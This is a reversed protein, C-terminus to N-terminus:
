GASADECLSRLDRYTRGSNELEFVRGAVRVAVVAQERARFPTLDVEFAHPGIGAADLDARHRDASATAVSQGDLLVEIREPVESSLQRVWGSLLGAEIKDVYGEFRRRAGHLYAAREPDIDQLLPVVDAELDGFGCFSVLERLFVTPHVLAKEYSILLVPCASGLAFDFMAQTDQRADALATRPSIGESIINRCAIAVTDRVSVVLRPNRFLSLVDSGLVHLHPRKLGWVDATENRRRIYHRLVDPDNAAIAAEADQDEFVVRDCHDGMALGCRRLVQAIMSTGSRAVGTVLITRQRSAIDGPAEDNLRLVGQNRLNDIPLDGM